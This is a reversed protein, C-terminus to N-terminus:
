RRRDLAPKPFKIGRFLYGINHLVVWCARIAPLRHGQTAGRHVNVRRFVVVYKLARAAFEDVKCWIVHWRAPWGRLLGAEQARHRGNANCNVYAARQIRVADM